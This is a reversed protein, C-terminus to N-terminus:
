TKGVATIGQLTMLIDGLKWPAGMKRAPPENISIPTWSLIKHRGTQINGLFM